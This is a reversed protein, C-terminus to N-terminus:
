LLTRDEGQGHPPRQEPHGGTFRSAYLRARVSFGIMHKLLGIKSEILLLSVTGFLLRSKPIGYALLGQVQHFYTPGASDWWFREQFVRMTADYTAPFSKLFRDMVSPASGGSHPLIYQIHTFNHMTQTLALDQVM